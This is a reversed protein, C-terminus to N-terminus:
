RKVNPFEGRALKRLGERWTDAHAVSAGQRCLEDHTQQWFQDDDVHRRAACVFTWLAGPDVYMLHRMTPLKPWQANADTRM